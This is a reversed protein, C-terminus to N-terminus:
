ISLRESLYFHFLDLQERVNEIISRKAPPTRRRRHRGRLERKQRNQAAFGGLIPLFSLIKSPRQGEL